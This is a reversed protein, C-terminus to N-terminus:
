ALRTLQYQYRIDTCWPPALRLRMGCCECDPVLPKREKRITSLLDERHPQPNESEASVLRQRPYYYLNVSFAVTFPWLEGIAGRSVM